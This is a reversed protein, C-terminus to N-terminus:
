RTKDATRRHVQNPNVSTQAIGQLEMPTAPNDPLAFNRRLGTRGQREPQTGVSQHQNRRFLRLRGAMNRRKFM